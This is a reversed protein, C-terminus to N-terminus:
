SDLVSVTNDGSDAVYITNTLPNAAVGQPLFGVSVTAVVTNTRGSIVSVAGTLDFSNVVYVTNTVPNAAAGTPASGVPITATIGIAATGSQATSRAPAASAAAAATSAVPALSAVAATVLIVARETLRMIGRSGRRVAAPAIWGASPCVLPTERTVSLQPM